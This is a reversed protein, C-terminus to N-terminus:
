TIIELGADVRANIATSFADPEFFAHRAVLRKLSPLAGRSFAEELHEDLRERVLNDSLDLEELQQLAPSYLIQELSKETFKNDSLDLKKLKPWDDKEGLSKFATDTLHCKRLCLEVLEQAPAAFLSAGGATKLKNDSLNVRELKPWIPGSLLEEVGASTIRNKAPTNVGTKGASLDLVRLGSLESNAGFIHMYADELLCGSLILTHINAVASSKFLGSATRWTLRVQSLQLRKLGAIVPAGILEEFGYTTVHNLDLSELKSAALDAFASIDARTANNVSLHELDGYHVLARILNPGASIRDLNLARLNTEHMADLLPKLPRYGYTFRLWTVHERLPSKAFLEASGEGADALDLGLVCASWVPNEDIARFALNKAITLEQLWQERWSDEEKVFHGPSRARWRAAHGQIYQRLQNEPKGDELMKSTHSILSSLAGRSPRAHLISRIEGFDLSASTSM